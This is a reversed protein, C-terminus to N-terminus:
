GNEDVGYYEHELFTEHSVNRFKPPLAKEEEIQQIIALYDASMKLTFEINYLAHYTGIEVIDTFGEYDTVKIYYTEGDFYASALKNATVKNLTLDNDFIAFPDLNNEKVYRRFSEKPLGAVVPKIYGDITEYLYRKAGLCKFYKYENKEIEWAGLDTYCKDGTFIGSNQMEKRKNWQKLDAEFEKSQPLDTRYYLSDTDYQIIVDPYKAILDILIQRAYSTCWYAIYPSLWVNQKLENYEKEAAEEEIDKTNENYKYICDYLRTACMGYYSNVRAKVEKLERECNKYQETEEKLTKLQEKLEHKLKYDDNMCKLLFKPAKSKHTFYWCRLVFFGTFNYVKLLAQLDINNIMIKVNEIYQIKGNNIIANRTSKFNMVKHKSFIAHSTTAQMKQIFVEFIRYQHKHKAIEDPACEKLEGAPYLRHNIQAPYDSTLDASKIHKLKKGVYRVNSGSLGGCYLFRRFEYYTKEDKPMLLENAKCEAKYNYIANKCKQRIIGTQTMPIKLGQKTFKEFAIYSLEDLIQVDNRNYQYEKETITTRWTRILNYDLDGKLKQTETYTEAIKALSKGFLGLCERFEIQKRVTIKLPDRKTKAFIESIGVKDLQRKFFSWEHALNAAWIILKANEFRNEIEDCLMQLFPTLLNIDRFYIYQGNIMIQVHYVFACQPKGEKNLITTSETDYGGGCYLYSEANKSKRKKNCITDVGNLVSEVTHPINAICLATDSM